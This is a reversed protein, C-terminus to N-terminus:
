EEKKSDKDSIEKLKKQMKVRELQFIRAMEDYGHLRRTLENLIENWSNNNLSIFEPSIIDVYSPMYKFTILILSMIDEVEIEIEAFSTYFDGNEKLLKPENIKSRKVNVKNEKDIEKILNDLTERLHEPPKGIIELIIEANINKTDENLNM